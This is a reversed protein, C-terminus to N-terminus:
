EMVNGIYVSRNILLKSQKYSCDSSRMCNKGSFFCACLLRLMRASIHYQKAKMKSSNDIFSRITLVISSSKFCFCICYKSILIWLYNQVQEALMQNAHLEMENLAEKLNLSTEPNLKLKISPERRSVNRVTMLIFTFRITKKGMKTLCVELNGPMRARVKNLSGDNGYFVEM